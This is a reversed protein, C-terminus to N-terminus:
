QTSYTHARRQAHFLNWSYSFSRYIHLSDPSLPPPFTGEAQDARWLLKTTLRLNGFHGSYLDRKIEAPYM